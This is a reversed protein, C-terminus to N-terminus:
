GAMGARGFDTKAAVGGIDLRAALALNAVGLYRDMRLNDQRAPCVAFAGAFLERHDPICERAVNLAVFFAM